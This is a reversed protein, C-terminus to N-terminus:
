RGRRMRYLVVHQEGGVDERIGLIYDNGVELARVEAPIRVEGLVDGADGIARLRTDSDGLASTVVWLTGAQDTLIGSYAPLHEPMPIELMKQKQRERFDKDTILGVMGDIAREYNRRTPRRSPVGVSVAHLRRGDLAYVDVSDSEATGVYLRDDTVAFRTVRGLPRNEGFAVEGIEKTIKGQTDGLWLPATYAEGKANPPGTVNPMTIGAVIGSRTCALEFPNHVEAYQRVYRGAGDLVTVRGQFADWVFLSDAGCQRVWTPTQFEGPGDGRRGVTGLPKGSADFLRVSADHADAIAIRGDSLRTAAQTYLFGLAGDSATASIEVAPLSDVAWQAVARGERPSEGGCGVISGLVACSLLFRKM